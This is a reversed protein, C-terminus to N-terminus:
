RVRGGDLIQPAVLQVQDVVAGRRDREIRRDRPQLEEERDRGILGSQHGPHLRHTDRAGQRNHEAALFHATQDNGGAVELM